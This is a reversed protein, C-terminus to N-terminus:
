EAPGSSEVSRCSHPTARAARPGRGASRKDRRVQQRQRHPQRWRKREPTADKTAADAAANRLFRKDVESTIVRAGGAGALAAGVLPTVTLSAEVEDGPAGGHIVADKLPGYQGWTLGSRLRRSRHGSSEPASFGAGMKPVPFGNDTLLANIVGGVGGAVGVVLLIYWVSSSATGSSQAVSLTM